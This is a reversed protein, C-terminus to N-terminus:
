SRHNPIRLHFVAGGGPNNSASIEGDHLGAVRSAVALGLGTGNTRTTFFADFIRAERGPPLGPGFDRVEFVLRSARQAVHAVPNVGPPSNQRANDLLNVLAQRMRGSDLQWETPAGAADIVIPEDGFVDRVAMRMLEVPDVPGIDAPGTRAFSLLDSTLADLRNAGDIVHGICAKERSGDALREAALQAHGKLSALPNRIEHALVASMEGLLTLHRQHELWLRTEDYRVSTRLFLWAALFLVVAATIGIVLSQRASQMLRMSATPQFEIVLYREGSPTAMQFPGPFYARLRGGVAVLPIRGSEPQRHLPISQSTTGPVTGPVATGAHAGDPALAVYRLGRSENARLFRAVVASDSMGNSAALMERFTAGLLDAQGRNLGEVASRSGGFSALAHLVLALALLGTTAMWGRRAWVGDVGSLTLSTDAVRKNLRSHFAEDM